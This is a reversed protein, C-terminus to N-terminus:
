LLGLLLKFENIIAEPDKEWLNKKIRYVICGLHAALELERQIDRDTYQQYGPDIFHHREDFEIILNLEKIYGDPFYGISHCISNDNKLILYNTHEQLYNLCERELGGIRPTLPERNEKQKEILNIFLKRSIQKGQPTKFFHDVGYKNMCTKRIKNQIEQTQMPHDVGYNKLSTLKKKLKVGENSNHTKDGYKKQCTKESKLKVDKSQMPNETGFKQLCTNRIKEKIDESKFPNDTGFKEIMKEKYLKKHKDTILNTTAGYRELCTQKIKEKIEKTKTHHGKIFRNSLRTVPQGCGCECFKEEM